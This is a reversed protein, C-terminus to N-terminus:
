RIQYSNGELYTARNKMEMGCANNFRFKRRCIDFSPLFSYSVLGSLMLAYISLYICVREDSTVHISETISQLLILLQTVGCQHTM